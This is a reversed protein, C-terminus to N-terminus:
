IHGAIVIIAGPGSFYLCFVTLLHMYDPSTKICVSSQLPFKHAFRHRKYATTIDASHAGHRNIAPGLLIAVASHRPPPPRHPPPTTSPPPPPPPAAPRYVHRAPSRPSRRPPRSPRFPGDRATVPWWPGVRASVPRCPGVRASVPRCPGVRASAASVPRGLVVRTSVPRFSMHTTWPPLPPPTRTHTQTHTHAYTRTHTRVHTHSHM